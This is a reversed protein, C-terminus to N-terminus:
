SHQAEILAAPNRLAAPSRHRWLQSVSVSSCVHGAANLLAQEGCIHKAAKSRYINAFIHRIASVGSIEEIRERAADPADRLVHIRTLPLAQATFAGAVPLHYKQLDPRTREFGAPQIALADLVDRWIKIRPFAPLVMPHGPRSLDLVTIDDALLARGNRSLAAALTSKGMGSPGCFAIAGDGMRACSAHLPLLGRQHCLIGFVTGLLFVRIDPANHDMEPQVTIQSGCRVLFAAVGAIRFRCDGDRAIQLLPGSFVLNPLVAPIAGVHITIDPNRDDGHWSILEPLPLESHVRWGCLWRDAALGDSSSQVEAIADLTDPM